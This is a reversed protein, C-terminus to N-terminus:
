LKMIIFNILFKGNLVYNLVVIGINLIVFMKVVKFNKYLYVNFFLLGM